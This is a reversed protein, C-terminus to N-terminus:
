IPASAKQGRGMLAGQNADAVRIWDEIEERGIGGFEDGFIGFAIPGFPEGFEIAFMELRAGAIRTEVGANGTEFHGGAQLEGRGFGEIQGAFRVGGFFNVADVLLDSFIKARAAKDGAAQEFAANTENLDPAASVVTERAAIPVAVFIEGLIM